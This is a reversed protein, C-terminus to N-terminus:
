FINYIMNTMVCIVAGVLTPILFAALTWKLSGTEKKITLLTTSCPWHFLSFLMTNVATIITWGNQLFLEKMQALSMSDSITSQSLYAMVIIPLVTENAPFGLIFALLIVGDLGMFRGVPDLFDAVTSLLTADGITINAFIWIILGSPAAVAVARGLVFLTRDLVSRVIVRLFDPTRYPPLELTFSSPEGKLITDSLLKSVLFTVLIGLVVFGTLILTSLLSSLGGSGSFIMFMTILSILTPFRGNCPVFCNTLIAILRERPSDIIRCGMVGVANCGFGMCMTLAQKGCASCKKFCKDLNFAIRPLYGLDELLTFLPFFIAMPPLMVSVVWTLIHYVGYILPHYIIEPIKMYLALELLKGELIGFLNSLIQSPVNAGSITLWFIFCLLAIMVPIGFIRSTFIRDAKRDFDMYTNSTKTVVGNTLGEATIVLCSVITDSLKDGTIGADELLKKALSVSNSLEADNNIDIGCFDCIKGIIDSNGELIRLSAFRPNILKTRESIVPVIISLADEIPKIYRIKVPENEKTIVTEAKELLTDLGKARRAVTGVVPVGLNEELKKLNVTIGHKKAEDLLNVCVVVNKTIELTQLVLNLNRELCSADCVVIVADPNEFLIFDRAVEEEPSHAMLSYTGPIDTLSYSIGNHVCVGDAIDVTKGPWNGTHQNLGTLQNFVSSKGVNPNGALVIKRLIGEYPEINKKFFISM